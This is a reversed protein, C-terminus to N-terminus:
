ASMSLNYLEVLPLFVWDRPMLYSEWAGTQLSGVDAPM